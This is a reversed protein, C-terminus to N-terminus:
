EALYIIIYRSIFRMLKTLPQNLQNSKKIEIYFLVDNRPTYRRPLGL